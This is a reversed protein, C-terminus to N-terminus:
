KLSKIFAILKESDYQSIFKSIKEAFSIYKSDAETLQVLTQEISTYDGMAAQDIIVGLTYIDPSFIQKEQTSSKQSQSPAPENIIWDIDLLNKILDFLEEFIIPKDIHGDCLKLFTIREEQEVVSATIGIIKTNNLKKNKKIEQIAEIGNMVPMVLDMLIIDPQQKVALEIATKGNIATHINFGFPDLTSVLMSLNVPNDDVILIKLTKGIYGSINTTSITSESIDSAEKLNLEVKFTSGKNVISEVHLRGNMLEIVKKTIALGLGTGEVFKWEDGIQSFPEFIQNLKNKPIGVGTDNVEFSFNRELTKNYNVTLKITGSKTYKVANSLLNLLVQRMKTEDGKVTKPINESAHYSLILDKQEARIRIINLVDQIMDPFSFNSESLMLKRAEIKSYDLIETILSLLHEGSSKIIKVYDNEPESLNGLTILIQSYGLIGNLPTRLEHSMNSLFEGKAKNAAEADEKASILKLNTQKLAKTRREVLKELHLQHLELENKASETTGLLFNIEDYLEGIEDNSEKQIRNSFDKKKSIQHTFRTLRIIPQSIFKQFINSLVFVLLVMFFFSTLRFVMQKRLTENINTQFRIYLYGYIKQMHEVPHYIHLWKKDLLYQQNNLSSPIELLSDKSKHYSAFLSDSNDYLLGDYANPIHHLEELITKAAQKNEFELPMACYSAFLQSNLKANEITSNTIYKKQYLIDIIADTAITAISIFVIIIIIKNRISLNNFFRMTQENSQSNLLKPM